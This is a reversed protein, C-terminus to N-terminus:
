NGSTSSLLKEFLKVCLDFGKLVAHSVLLSFPNDTAECALAM